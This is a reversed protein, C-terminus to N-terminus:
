VWVAWCEYEEHWWAGLEDLEKREDDSLKDESPGPMFISYADMNINYDEDEPVHPNLIELIRYLKRNNM